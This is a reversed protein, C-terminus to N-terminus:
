ANAPTLTVMLPKKEWLTFVKQDKWDWSEKCLEMDFYLMVTGLLLRMEHWALNKGVCNRPGVSFPEMADLKDDKFEPDGLWREPHFEHPKRFFEENRYTALHHVGITTGEPLWEGCVTAGGASVVRPLASPVPPYM